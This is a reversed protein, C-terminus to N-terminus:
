NKLSLSLFPKKNCKKPITTEIPRSSGQYFSVLCTTQMKLPIRDAQNGFPRYWMHSPVESQAKLWHTLAISRSSDKESLWQLPVSYFIESSRASSILISTTADLPSAGNKGDDGLALWTTTHRERLQKSVPLQQLLSTLWSSIEKPPPSIRFSEPMQEPFHSRLLSTLEDDGLHWDRSLAYAVNNRKGEFWQSYGKIDADMFISAYKRAANVRTKAQVPHENPEVFNSKRMWGEATTSDTMSLACDGATLRGHIIDIWPTIVAALFELLNNSARFLLDDPIGRLVRIATAASAQPAPTRIIFEIQHGFPM